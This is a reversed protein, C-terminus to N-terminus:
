VAGRSPVHKRTRPDRWLLCVLGISIGVDAEPIELEEKEGTQGFYKHDMLVPIHVFNLEPLLELLQEGIDLITVECGGCINLWEEAVKVPM